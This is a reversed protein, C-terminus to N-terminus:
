ALGTRRDVFVSLGESGALGAVAPQVTERVFDLGQDIRAPDAAITTARVLM